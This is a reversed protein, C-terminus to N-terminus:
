ARVRVGMCECVWASVCGHVCVRVKAVGKQVSELVKGWGEPTDHTHGMSVFSPSYRLESLVIGDRHCDIIAEYSIRTITAM